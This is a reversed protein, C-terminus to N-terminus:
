GVISRHIDINRELAEKLQLAAMVFDIPNAPARGAALENLAPLVPTIKSIVIRRCEKAAARLESDNPSRRTGGDAPRQLKKVTAYQRDLITPVDYLLMDLLWRAKTKFDRQLMDEVLSDIQDCIRRCRAADSHLLTQRSSPVAFTPPWTTRTQANAM